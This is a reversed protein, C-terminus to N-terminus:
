GTQGQKHHEYDDKNGERDHEGIGGEDELHESPADPFVFRIRLGMGVAKKNEQPKYLRHNTYFRQQRTRPPM